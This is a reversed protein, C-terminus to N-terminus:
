DFNLKTGPVDTPVSSEHARNIPQPTMNFPGQTRDRNQVGDEFFVYFYHM